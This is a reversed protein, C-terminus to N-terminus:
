EEENSPSPRHSEAPLDPFSSFVFETKPLAQRLSLADRKWVQTDSLYLLRLAPLNQLPKLDFVQTSSLPLLQESTFIHFVLLDLSLADCPM